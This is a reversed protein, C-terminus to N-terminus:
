SRRHLRQQPPKCMRHLAATSVAGSTTVKPDQEQPLHARPALQLPTSGVGIMRLLVPKRLRPMMVRGVWLPRLQPLLGTKLLTWLRMWRLCPRM